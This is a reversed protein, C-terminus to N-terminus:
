HTAIGAADSHRLSCALALFEAPRNNSPEWHHGSLACSTALQAVPHQSTALQAIPHQSTALVGINIAM